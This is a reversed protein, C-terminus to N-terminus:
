AAYFIGKRMLREWVKLCYLRGTALEYASFTIGTKEQRLAVAAEWARVFGMKAVPFRQVSRMGRTTTHWYAVWYLHGTDPDDTQGVRGPSHRSEFAIGILGSSNNSQRRHTTKHAHAPADILSDRHSIAAAKAGESGGYKSDSFLKNAPGQPYRAPIRVQWGVVWTGECRIVFPEHATATNGM